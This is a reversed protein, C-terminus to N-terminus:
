FSYRPITQLIQLYVELQSVKQTVQVSFDTLLNHDNYSRIYSVQSGQGINSSEDICPEAIQLILISILRVNQLFYFVLFSYLCGNSLLTSDSVLVLLLVSFFFPMYNTSQSPPLIYISFVFFGFRMLISFCRIPAHFSCRCFIANQFVRPLHM